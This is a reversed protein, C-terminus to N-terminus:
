YQKSLYSDIIVQINEESYHMEAFRRANKSLKFLENPNKYFYEVSEKINQPSVDIFKGVSTDMAEPIAGRRSGIVPIGCALSELIVRGFGEEHISPVIVVDAASYYLPLKDNDIRGLFILNKIKSKQNKIEKELPGTGAIVLCIKTNWRSVADLLVLVGKEKVLRGVFLVTFENKLGIISRSKEKSGTHRFKKLDIWYTFIRVKESEIGLDEVEKKSQSSLTLIEDSNNFIWKAFNRYLGVKPFHYISHTTTLVKKNFIRGWIVSVFGSVLGHSHIVKLNKGKILLFVPLAFLLGPTLYLFELLPNQVLNYFVGGIWPIRYIVNNKGRKEIFNAKVKTTIPKYTLVWTKWGRKDLASILDDFHTEIGGINPSFGITVLLVEKM